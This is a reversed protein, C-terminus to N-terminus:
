VSNFVFRLKLLITQSLNQRKISRNIILRFKGRISKNYNAIENLISKDYQNLLDPYADLLDKAVLNINEKGIMLSKMHKKLSFHSIINNSSNKGHIRHLAMESSHDYYVKGLYRCVYQVWRDHSECIELPGKNLLAVLERNMLFTFGSGSGNFLISERNPQYRPSEYLDGIINLKEDTIKANSYYLKPGNTSDHSIFSIAHSLKKKFWVDDQDAFAYYATKDAKRLLTMFSESYGINGGKILVICNNKERYEEIINVTSDTSGDDRIVLKVKCGEQNLISDIQERLYKEGNYTSMLVTVTNM